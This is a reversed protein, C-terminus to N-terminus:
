DMNYDKKENKGFAFSGPIIHIAIFICFSEPFGPLKKKIHNKLIFFWNLLALVVVPLFM